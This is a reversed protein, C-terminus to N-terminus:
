CDEKLIFGKSQSFYQFILTIHVIFFVAFDDNRFFIAQHSGLLLNAETFKPVRPVDIHDDCYRVLYGGTFVLLSVVVISKRQRTIM